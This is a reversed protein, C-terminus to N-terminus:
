LERLIKKNIVEDEDLESMLEWDKEMELNNGSSRADMEELRRVHRFNKRLIGAAIVEIQQQAEHERYRADLEAQKNQLSLTLQDLRTKEVSLLTRQKTLYYQQQLFTARPFITWDTQKFNKEQQSFAALNQALRLSDKKRRRIVERLRKLEGRVFINQAIALARQPSIVKQQLDLKLDLTKEHEKKLCFFHRRILDGLM